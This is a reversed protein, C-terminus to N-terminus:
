VSEFEAHFLVLSPPGSLTAGTKSAMQLVHLLALLPYAVCCPFPRSVVCEIGPKPELGAEVLRFAALRVAAVSRILSLFILCISCPHKRAAVVARGDDEPCKRVLSSINWLNVGEISKYIIHWCFPFFAGEQDLGDALEACDRPRQETFSEALSAVRHLNKVLTPRM